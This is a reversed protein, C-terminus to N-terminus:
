EPKPFYIEASRVDEFTTIEDINTIIWFYFKDDDNEDIQIVNDLNKSNVTMSFIQEDTSVSVGWAPANLKKNGDGRWMTNAIDSRVTEETTFRNTNGVWHYSVYTSGLNYYLDDQKFFAIELIAEEDVKYYIFIKEGTQVRYIEKLENHSGTKKIYEIEDELKKELDTYGKDGGIGNTYFGAYSNNGQFTNGIENLIMVEKRLLMIFAIFMMISLADLITMRRAALGSNKILLILLVIFLIFVFPLMHALINKIKVANVTDACAVFTNSAANLLFLLIILFSIIRITKVGKKM